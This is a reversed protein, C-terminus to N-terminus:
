ESGRTVRQLHSRISALNPRPTTPQLADSILDGQAIELEARRVQQRQEIDRLAAEIAAARNDDAAIPNGIAAIRLTEEDAELGALRVEFERKKSVLKALQEQSAELASRRAEQLKRLSDLHGELRRFSEFDRDLAAHAKDAAVEREGITVSTPNKELAQTLRLLSERRKEISSETQAIDKELQALAAKHEALPRVQGTIERELGALEHRAREIEFRTPIQRRTEQRVRSWVTGAYSGVDTKKAVVVAGAGVLCVVIWKHM